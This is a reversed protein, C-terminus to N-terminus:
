LQTEEQKISGYTRFTRRQRMDGDKNLTQKTQHSGPQTQVHATKANCPIGKEMRKSRYRDKARFHTGQLCCIYPQNSFSRWTLLM